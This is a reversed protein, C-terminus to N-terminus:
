GSLREWINEPEKVTGRKGNGGVSRKRLRAIRDALPPHTSFLHMLGRGSLPNVIFMHATEPRAPMPLQGAYAGLKELARSLGDPSGVLQAATEDALYERSRSIGMQILLAAVPALISMVILGVGGLGGGKENDRFGGFVASWRAMDALLMVAGAMTAAISGILIDRNRVHGLEHALVGMIEERDMLHILGETVAVVANDPNRGTAFANPAEAPIVYIRPMPLGAREALIRVIDYLEPAEGPTIERARYMGLVIRDSFWYSFFNMGAALILATIMGGRGGILGGIGVLFATMVGLLITTRIQNGM